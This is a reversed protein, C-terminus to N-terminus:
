WKRFYKHNYGTSTARKRNRSKRKPKKFIPALKMREEYGERVIIEPIEKITDRAGDFAHGAMTRFWNKFKM